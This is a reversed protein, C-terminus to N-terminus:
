KLEMIGNWIDLEGSEQPILGLRWVSIGRVGLMEALKVKDAISRSNEYRDRICM